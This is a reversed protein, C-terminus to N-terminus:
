NQKRVSLYEDHFQYYPCHRFCGASYAAFGDEDLEVECAEDGYGEDYVFHICSDCNTVPKQTQNKPMDAM